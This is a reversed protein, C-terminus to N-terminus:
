EDIRAEEKSLVLLIYFSVACSGAALVALPLTLSGSPMPSWPLSEKNSSEEFQIWKLIGLGSWFVWFLVSSAIFKRFLVANTYAATKTFLFALVPTLGIAFLYVRILEAEKTCTIYLTIMAMLFILLLVLTIKIRM